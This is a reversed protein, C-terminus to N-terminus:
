RIPVTIPEANVEDINTTRVVVQLTWKGRIPVDVGYALFHGIGAQRLPVPVPDIGASPLTFTARVEPVDVQAGDTTLIYTHVALLGARAPDVVVDVLLKDGAKVETSYYSTLAARAPVANVLLATLALVVAGIVLEGVVVRRLRKTDLRTRKPPAAMAGPGRSLATAPRRTPQTPRWHFPLALDGHVLRRSFSALALM